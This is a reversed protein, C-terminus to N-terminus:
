EQWDGFGKRVPKEEGAHDQNEWGSLYSAKYAFNAVEEANKRPGVEGGHVGYRSGEGM